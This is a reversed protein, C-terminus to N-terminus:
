VNTSMSVAAVLTSKRTSIYNIYLFVSVVKERSRLSGLHWNLVPPTGEQVVSRPVHVWSM